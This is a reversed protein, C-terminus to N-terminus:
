LRARCERDAGLQASEIASLVARGGGPPLLLLARKGRDTCESLKLAVASAARYLQGCTVRLESLDDQVFTFVPKGGHDAAQEHLLHALTPKNRSASHVILTVV